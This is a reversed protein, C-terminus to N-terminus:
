SLIIFVFINKPKNDSMITKLRIDTPQALDDDTMVLVDGGIVAFEDADATDVEAELALVADEAAGTWVVVGAAAGSEVENVTEFVMLTPIMAARPVGCPSSM